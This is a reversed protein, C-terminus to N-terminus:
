KQDEKDMVQTLIKYLFKSQSDDFLTLKSPDLYKKLKLDLVQRQEPSDMDAPPPKSEQHNVPSKSKYYHKEITESDRFM